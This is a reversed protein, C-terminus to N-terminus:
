ELPEAVFNDFYIQTTESSFTGAILGVDGRSIDKDVVEALLVGNVFLRLRDLNCDARLHNVQSSQLIEESYQYGGSSIVRLSTEPTRKRIAYYGDSSILFAYYNKANNYYIQKLM